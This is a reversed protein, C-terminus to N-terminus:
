FGGSVFFESPLSLKRNHPTCLRSHSKVKRSSSHSKSTRSPSNPLVQPVVGESVARLPGSTGEGSEEGDSFRRSPVVVEAVHKEKRRRLSAKAKPSPQM